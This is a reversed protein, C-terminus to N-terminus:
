KRPYVILFGCLDYLFVSFFTSVFILVPSRAVETEECRRIRREPEDPKLTSAPQSRGQRRAEGGGM